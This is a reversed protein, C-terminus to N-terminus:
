GVEFIKRETKHIRETGNGAVIYNDCVIMFLNPLEYNPHVALCMGPEITMPEDLRILPREVMDYGQGHAYLRLEGPLGRGEMFDNHAKAVERCSAGPTLLGASFDQAERAAAF